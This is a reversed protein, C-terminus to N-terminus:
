RTRRITVPASQMMRFFTDLDMICVPGRGKEKAVLLWDTNPLKNARAQRIWAPVSWSEQAKCEVSFPFRKLAETDLRIDTGTQGMPRSEIAQDKGYPLGTLESIMEAVLKQLERGKSKASAHTIRRPRGAAMLRLEVIEASPLTEGNSLKLVKACPRCIGIHKTENVRYNEYVRVVGPRSQKKICHTLECRPQPM